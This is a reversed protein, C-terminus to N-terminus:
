RRGEDNKRRRLSRLSFRARLRAWPGVSRSMAALVEDVESWLAEVDASAPEGPGFVGADTRRALTTVGVEPFHSALERGTERRTAGLPPEHGLDRGLDVVEYWGGLVRAVAAEARRRRARRRAKIVAIVVFPLALLLLSALTVGAVLLWGPLPEEDTDLEDEEADEPLPQTPPEEPEEPPQPELLQQPQPEAESRAESSQPPTDEDPLPDFSVWGIGEFPVEVWAHVDAGRVEVPGEPAAGDAEAEHYFGMVVRAPIGRQRAMLAMAVAFQEDDGIPDPDALLTAIRDAGHGARSPPDGERGSSLVGSAALGDRLQQVTELGEAAGGAFRDAVAAVADPVSQPAPLDLDAFRAEALASGSPRPRVTTSFSYSDGDRLGATALATPGAPNLHLGRQLEAARPGSFEVDLPEGLVPLWVDAYDHVTVRIEAEHGEALPPGTLPPASPFRAGVRRFAGSDGGATGGAVDMVTGTYADLTALRLREGHPLGEVTLLVDEARDKVYSRFGVLPSSFDHMELPPVVVDRVVVRQGGPALLPGLVVTLVVTGGLLAATGRLRRQRLASFQSRQTEDVDSGSAETLQPRLRWASWALAVVVAVLGQALPFPEHTSSGAIVLVFLVAIVVLAWVGRRARLAIGAALITAVLTVLFPAVGLDPFSGLPPAITVWDKWVTVTGLLLGRLTALTPVVAATTSHPLAFAGGFAVYSAMTVATLTLIGWRRVAGVWAIVLGLLLGGGVALWPGAGGWVPVLGVTAAIVLVTVVALDVLGARSPARRAGAIGRERRERERRRARAESVARAQERVATSSARAPTGRRQSRRTPSSPPATTTM